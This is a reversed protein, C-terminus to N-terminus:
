DKWFWGNKSQGSEDSKSDGSQPHSVEVSSDTEERGDAFRKTKVIKSEVSGDPLRVRETRTMTSIVRSQAPESPSGIKENVAETSSMSPTEPVSKRNGGSVLELWNENDGSSQEDEVKPVSRRYKELEEQQQRREELLM